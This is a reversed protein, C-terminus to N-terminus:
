VKGQPSFADPDFVAPQPNLLCEATAFWEDTAFIVSAGLRENALNCCEKAWTPAEEPEFVSSGAKEDVDM